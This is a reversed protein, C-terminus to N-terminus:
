NIQGPTIYRNCEVFIFTARKEWRLDISSSHGVWLGVATMTSGSILYLFLHSYIKNLPLKAEEEEEQCSSFNWNIGGPPEINLMKDRRRM